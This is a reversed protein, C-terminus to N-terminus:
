QQPIGAKMRIAEWKTIETEIQKGFEAPTSLAVLAGADQIQKKINDRSLVERLARNMKDVIPAPTGAPFAIGYWGILDYGPLGSEAVTPIDPTVEWRTPTAVALAKLDGSKILGIVSHLSESLYDVEKARLAAVGAPTNRYPIHKVEIGAMQRFLEAAFNQTSGRGVDAFNLKGPSAKAAAILERVNNYPADRYTAFVFATHAILSVPAFDKVSEYPLSKYMTASVTHGASMASVTHGDKPAKAVIDGAITGGAGPRNEVVVPQGLIESLPQSIIRAVIDTGGGAGFGVVIRIPKTPWEQAVAQPGVAAVLALAAAAIAARRGGLSVKM